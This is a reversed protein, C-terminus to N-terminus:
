ESVMEISPQQRIPVDKAFPGRAGEENTESSLLRGDATDQTGYVCRCIGTPSPPIAAAELERERSFQAMGGALDSVDHEMQVMDYTWWINCGIFQKEDQGQEWPQPLECVTEQCSAWSPLFLSTNVCYGLYTMRYGRRGEDTLM